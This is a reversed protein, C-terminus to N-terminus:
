VNPYSYEKTVGNSTISLKGSGVTLGTYKELFAEDTGGVGGLLWNQTNYEEGEKGINVINAATTVSLQVNKFTVNELVAGDAAGAALLYFSAEKATTVSVSLNEFTINRMVSKAGFTGFLSYRGDQQIATNVITYSLNKLTYGNGEVRARVEDRRLTNLKLSSCDITKSESMNCIYWNGSSLGNLMRRVGSSDRVMEWDGKIYKAYIVPNDPKEGEPMSISNLVPNICEKEEFYQTFSYNSSKVPISLDIYAVGQRFSKHAIIDGNKYTKGNEGLMDGEDDTVLVVDVKVDPIWDAYVYWHEDQKIKVSFDVPTDTKVLNSCTSDVEKGDTTVPKGDATKVFYWGGFSNDDKAVSVNQVEDFDGIVYSDAVYHIDKVVVSRTGDFFGGNSYYTVIQNRADKGALFEDVGIEGSCGAFLALAGFAVSILFLILGTKTKNRM